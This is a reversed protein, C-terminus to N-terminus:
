RILVKVDHASRMEQVRVVYLLLFCTRAVMKSTKIQDFVPLKTLDHRSCVGFQSLTPIPQLHKDEYLTSTGKKISYLHVSRQFTSFSFSRKQQNGGDFFSLKTMYFPFFLGQEISYNLVKNVGSKKQKTYLLDLFFSM